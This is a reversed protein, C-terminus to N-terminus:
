MQGCNQFCTNIKRRHNVVTGIISKLRLCFQKKLQTFIMRIQNSELFESPCLSQAISGLMNGAPILLQGKQHTNVSLDAM